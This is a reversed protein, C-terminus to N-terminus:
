NPEQRVRISIRHGLEVRIAHLEGRTPVLLLEREADYYMGRLGSKCPLFLDGLYSGLLSPARNSRELKTDLERLFEHGEIVRYGNEARFTNLDFQLQKTIRTALEPVPSNQVLSRRTILAATLPTQLVQAVCLTLLLGRRPVLQFRRGQAARVPIVINRRFYAYSTSSPSRDATLTVTCSEAAASAMASASGHLGLNERLASNPTTAISAAIRV